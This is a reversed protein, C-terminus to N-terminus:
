GVVLGSWKDYNHKFQDVTDSNVIYSPLANWPGVVRETFFNQRLSTNSIKNIQVKLNHGRTKTYNAMKFLQEKNIKVDDTMIRYM